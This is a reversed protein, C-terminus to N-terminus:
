TVVIPVQWGAVSVHHRADVLLLRRIIRNARKDCAFFGPSLFAVLWFGRIEVSCLAGPETSRHRWPHNPFLTLLYYERVSM